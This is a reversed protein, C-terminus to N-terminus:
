RRIRQKKIKRESTEIGIEKFIEEMENDNWLLEDLGTATIGDPYTNELYDDFADIKGAEVIRDWNDIGYFPKFDYLNEYILKM